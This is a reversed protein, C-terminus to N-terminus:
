TKIIAWIGVMPTDIKCAIVTFAHVGGICTDYHVRAPIVPTIAIHDHDIVAIVELGQIRVQASDTNYAPLTHSLSVQDAGDAISSTGAARMQM